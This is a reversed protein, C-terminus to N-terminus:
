ARSRCSPRARRNPWRTRKPWRPAPRCSSTQTRDAPPVFGTPLLPVLSISGVFFLAAGIMTIMRHRLCWRMASMYRSMIPGDHEGREKTPKLIYAAMMPTLLRAVLLSALIALVATWGFQKFFKGPIGGMFATPLFVAVLSFTTAIVAMGIEDAAELAAQMPTKGMRLHRAINEIEVIADDVLVGVVLALSLLTVM